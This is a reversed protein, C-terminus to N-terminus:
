PGYFSTGNQGLTYIQAMEDDSLERSWIAFDDFSGQWFGPAGSDPALGTNDTKVGFGLSTMLPNALTGDYSGIGALEGNYYVKILGILGHTPTLVFGVHDWEGTPFIPIVSEVPGVQRLGATQIYLGLAKTNGDL